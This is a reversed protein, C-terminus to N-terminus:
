IGENSKLNCFQSMVYLYAFASFLAEMAGYDMVKPSIMFTKSLNPSYGVKEPKM